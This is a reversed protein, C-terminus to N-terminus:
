TPSCLTSPDRGFIKAPPIPFAYNPKTGHRSWRANWSEVIESEGSNGCAEGAEESHSM